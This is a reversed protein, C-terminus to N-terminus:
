PRITKAVLKAAQIFAAAKTKHYDNAAPWRSCTRAATTHFAAASALHRVARLTAEFTPAKHHIPNM